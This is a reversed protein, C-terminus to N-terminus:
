KDLVILTERTNNLQVEIDRSKMWEKFQTINEEEFLCRGCISDCADELHEPYRARNCLEIQCARSVDLQIPDEVFPARLGKFEM